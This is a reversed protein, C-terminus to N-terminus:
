EKINAIMEILDQESLKKLKEWFEPSAMEHTWVSHGFKEEVYKHFESFLSGGFSIGTYASIIATERKNM